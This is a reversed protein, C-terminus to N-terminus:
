TSILLERNMSKVLQVIKVKPLSTKASCLVREKDCDCGQLEIFKSLVSEPRLECDEVCDKEPM